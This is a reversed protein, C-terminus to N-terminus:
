KNVFRKRCDDSCFYYTEGDVRLSKADRALIYTGCVPDKVMQNVGPSDPQRGLVGRDPGVGLAVLAWRLARYVIYIWLVTFLLRLM